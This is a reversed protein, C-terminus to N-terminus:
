LLYAWFHDMYLNQQLVSWSRGFLSHLKAEGAVADKAYVVWGTLMGGLAIVLDIRSDTWPSSTPPKPQHTSLTISRTAETSSGQYM